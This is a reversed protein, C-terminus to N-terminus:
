DEEPPTASATVPNKSNFDNIFARTIDLSDAVYALPVQSGDLIININHAKRDAATTLLKRM